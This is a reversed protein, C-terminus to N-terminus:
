KSIRWWLPHTAGAGMLGGGIPGGFIYAINQRRNWAQIFDALSYSCLTEQDTPFGSDICLVRNREYGVVCLLHGASYPRPAGALPGRVSVIVPFGRMLHAHLAEFSRLREVWCSYKEGLEYFSEAVNLIWNGYLDFGSDYVKGALAIPDIAKDSILRIANVLSTPSCIRESLPHQLAIQSKGPTTTLLIPPLSQLPSVIHCQQLQSLSACLSVLGTLDAGEVKVQFGDCFGTMPHIADQYAKVTDSKSCFTRQHSPGWEAYPLWPSWSGDQHLSVSFLWNGQSPRRGNWSLICEDFLPVESSQWFVSM